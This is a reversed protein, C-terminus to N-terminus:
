QFVAELESFAADETLRAYYRETTITNKHRFAKSVAEIPAGGDKALDVYAM